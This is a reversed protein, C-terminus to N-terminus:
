PTTRPDIAVSVVAGCAELDAKGYITTVVTFGRHARVYNCIVAPDQLNHFYALHAMDENAVLDWVWATAAIDSFPTLGRSFVVTQNAATRNFLVKVADIEGAEYGEIM